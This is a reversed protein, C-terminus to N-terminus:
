DWQLYSEPTDDGKHERSFPHAYYLGKLDPEYGEPFDIETFEVLERSDPCCYQVYLDLFEFAEFEDDVYVEVTTTYEPGFHTFLGLVAEGGRVRMRYLRTRSTPMRGIAARTLELAFSDNWIYAINNQLLELVRKKKGRRFLIFADLPIAIRLADSIFISRNLRNIIRQAANFKGAEILDFAKRGETELGQLEEELRM